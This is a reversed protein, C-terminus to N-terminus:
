IYIFCWDTLALVSAFFATLFKQGFLDFMAVSHKSRALNQTGGGQGDWVPQLCPRCICIAPCFFCEQWCWLSMLVWINCLLVMKCGGHIYALSSYRESDIKLAQFCANSKMRYCLFSGGYFKYILLTLKQTCYLVSISTNSHLIWSTM